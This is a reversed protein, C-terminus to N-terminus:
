GPYGTLYFYVMAYALAMYLLLAFSAIVKTPIIESLVICKYSSFMALMLVVFVLSFWFVLQNYVEDSDITEPFSIDLYPFLNLLVIPIITIVWYIIKINNKNQEEQM